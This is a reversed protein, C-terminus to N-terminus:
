SSYDGKRLFYVDGHLLNWSLYFNKGIKLVM